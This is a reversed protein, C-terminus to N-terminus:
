SELFKRYRTLGEQLEVTPAWGLEVRARANDPNRVSVHAANREEIKVTREWVKASTLVIEEMSVLRDNSLNFVEFGSRGLSALIGRCVDEVHLYRRANRRSGVTVIDKTRVDLFLQEVPSLHEHREGYIISFRL